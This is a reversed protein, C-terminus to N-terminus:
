VSSATNSSMVANNQLYQCKQRSVLSRNAPVTSCKIMFSGATGVTNEGQRFVQISSCIHVIYEKKEAFDPNEFESERETYFSSFNTLFYM